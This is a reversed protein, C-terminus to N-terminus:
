KRDLGAVRRYHLTDRPSAETGYLKTIALKYQGGFNFPDLTVWHDSDSGPKVRQAPSLGRVAEAWTGEM